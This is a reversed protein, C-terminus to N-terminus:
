YGGGGGSGGGSSSGSGGGSSTPQTNINFEIAMQESVNQPLIILKINLIIGHEFGDIDVSELIVRPDQSIIDIADLRIAEKTQEDLPEYLYNWIISGFNPLMVREGKATMFHNYIDQKILDTDYLVGNRANSNNSSFGRYIKSTVYNTSPNQVNSSPSITRVSNGMSGNYSTPTNYAM